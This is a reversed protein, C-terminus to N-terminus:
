EVEMKYISGARELGVKKYLADLAEPDEMNTSGICIEKVGIKKGADIFARLLKAGSKSKRYEPIVYLGYDSLIYDTSFFYESIYGVVAGVLTGAKDDVFGVLTMNSLHWLFGQRLKERNFKIKKYRGEVHMVEALGVLQEIDSPMIPRIM